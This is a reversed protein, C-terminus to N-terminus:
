FQLGTKLLLGESDTGDTGGANDLQTYALTVGMGGLNYGIEAVTVEQDVKSTNGHETESYALALSVSDSVAYKVGYSTRELDSTVGGDVDLDLVDAGVIIQGFTYSVGITDHTQENSSDMPQKFTDRFLNVQLGEVPQGSYGFGTVSGKDKQDPLSADEDDVGKQPQYSFVVTGNGVNGGVQIYDATTATTGLSDTNGSIAAMAVMTAYSNAAYGIKPTALARGDLGSDSGFAIHGMDGSIKLQYEIDGDTTANEDEYKGSFSAKMGNDLDVSNKFHLNLEKGLMQTSDQGVADKTDDSVMRFTQTISGTIEAMASGGIVLAGVLATTTKLKNM